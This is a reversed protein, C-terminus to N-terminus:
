GASVGNLQEAFLGLVGLALFLACASGLGWSLWRREPHRVWFHLLWSLAFSQLLVEPWGYVHLRLPVTTYVFGEISGPSPGFTSLIGIVVLLLWIVAWGRPQGFLVERLPFFALGFLVGRLPQFLPGAQVLRDSTSRMFGALGPSEFVTSYDLLTLALIGAIFYTVTHVVATKFILDPLRISESRM